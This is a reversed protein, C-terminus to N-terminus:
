SRGRLGLHATVFENWALIAAEEAKERTDTNKAREECIVYVM